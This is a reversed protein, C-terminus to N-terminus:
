RMGGIRLDALKVLCLLDGAGHETAQGLGVPLFGRDDEFVDGDSMERASRHGVRGLKGLSAHRDHSLGLERHPYRSELGDPLAKPTPLSLRM